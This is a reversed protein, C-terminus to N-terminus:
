KSYIVRFFTDANKIEGESDLYGVSYKYFGEKMKQAQGMLAGESVHITEGPLVKNAGGVNGCEFGFFYNKYNNLSDLIQLNGSFHDEIGEGLTFIPSLSNNQLYYIPRPNLRSSTFWHPLLSLNRKEISKVLLVPKPDKNLAYEEFYIKEFTIWM